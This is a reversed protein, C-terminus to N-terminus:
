RLGDRLDRRSVSREHVARDGASGRLGARVRRLQQCRGLSVCRGECRSGSAGCEGVDSAVDSTASDAASHDISSDVIADSLARDASADMLPDSIRGVCAAVLM